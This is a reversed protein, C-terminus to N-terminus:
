QDFMTSIMALSKRAASVVQETKAADADHAVLSALLQETVQIQTKASM